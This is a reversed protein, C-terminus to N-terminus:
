CTGADIEFKASDVGEIFPDGLELPELGMSEVTISEPATPGLLLDRDGFDIGAPDIDLDAAPEVLAVGIPDAM